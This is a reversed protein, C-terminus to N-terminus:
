QRRIWDFFRGYASRMAELSACYEPNDHDISVVPWSAQYLAMASRLKSFENRFAHQVGPDEITGAAASLQALRASVERRQQIAEKRHEHFDVDILQRSRRLTTELDRVAALVESGFRLM